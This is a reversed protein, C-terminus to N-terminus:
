EPQEKPLSDKLRDAFETCCVLCGEMLGTDQGNNLLELVVTHTITKGTEDGCDPCLNKEVLAIRVCSANLKYSPMPGMRLGGFVLSEKFWEAREAETVDKPLEAEIVWGLKEAFAQTTPKDGRPM